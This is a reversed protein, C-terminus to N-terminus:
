AALRAEHVEGEYHGAKIRRRVENVADIMENKSVVEVHMDHVDLAESIKHMDPGYFGIKGTNNARQITRFISDKAVTLLDLYESGIGSEALVISINIAGAIMGLQDPTGTGKKVSAFSSYYGVGLETRQDAELPQADSIVNIFAVGNVKIKNPNYKKNRKKSM